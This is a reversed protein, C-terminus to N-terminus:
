ENHNGGTIIVDYSAIEKIRNSENPEPALRWIIKDEKLM